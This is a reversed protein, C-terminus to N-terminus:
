YETWQPQTVSTSLSKHFLPPSYLLAIFAILYHFASHRHLFVALFFFQTGALFSPPLDTHLHNVVPTPQSRDLNLAKKPSRLYAVRLIGGHNNFGDLVGIGLLSINM